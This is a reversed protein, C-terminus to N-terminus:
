AFLYDSKSAMRPNILTIKCTSSKTLIRKVSEQLGGLRKTHEMEQASAWTLKIYTKDTSQARM